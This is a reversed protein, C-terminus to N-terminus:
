LLPRGRRSRSTTGEATWLPPLTHIEQDCALTSYFGDLAGGLMANPWAAYGPELDQWQLDDPALYRITPERRGRRDM